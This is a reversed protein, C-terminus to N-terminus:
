IEVGGATFVLLPAPSRPTRRRGTEGEWSAPLLRARDRGPNAGDMVTDRRFLQLRAARLGYARAGGEEERSIDLRDLRLYQGLSRTGAPNPPRTRGHRSECGPRRRSLMRRGM